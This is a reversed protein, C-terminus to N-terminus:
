PAAHRVEFDKELILAGPQDYVLFRILSPSEASSGLNFKGQIQKFRHILFIQGARYNAPKGDELKEQPYSWEKPPDSQRNIAIIHVYGGVATEEPHMNVLKFNVVLRSGERQIVMDAIDVSDSPM